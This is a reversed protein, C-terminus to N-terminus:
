MTWRRRCPLIFSLEGNASALGARVLVQWPQFPLDAVVVKMGRRGCESVFRNLASLGGADLVPVADMSLVVGHHDRTLLALEGFVRDAAAFFLPGNIRYVAWGVPLAEPVLGTHHSIDSVRTMDAINKM